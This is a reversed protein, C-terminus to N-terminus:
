LMLFATKKFANQAALAPAAGLIAPFLRARITYAEAFRLIAAGADSLWSTM